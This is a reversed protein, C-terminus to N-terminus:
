FWSCDSDEAAQQIGAALFLAIREKNEQYAAMDHLNDIFAMELLVSPLRGGCVALQANKQGRDVLGTGAVLARHMIDQLAYAGPAANSSHVFSEVGTGGGANFHISVFTSCGAEVAAQHRDWYPLGEHETSSWVLVGRDRLESAVLDVLETTLDAERYGSGVAGSDYGAGYGNSDWGHGADLYVKFSSERGLAFAQDEGGRFESLVLGGDSATIYLGSESSRIYYADSGVAAPMFEWQGGASAMGDKRQVVSSGSSALHMGSKVNVIGYHGDSVQLVKFNQAPTGNKAYLGIAAGEEVSGGLVDFVVSSSISSFVYGGEPIDVFRDTPVLRFAQALTGNPEYVQVNAGDHAHGGQIDLVLGNLKSVVIVGGACYALRWKQADTGNETWQQVNTGNTMGGNAVDLVLGTSLNRIVYWGAGDPEFEYKQFGRANGDALGINGGETYSAGLVSLYLESGLASQLSYATNALVVEESTPEFRWQQAVTGNAEYSQANAGEASSASAVDLVQGGAATRITCGEEAAEISWLCTQAGVDAWQHVNLGSAYGSGEVDVFLGSNANQMRYYGSKEDYTVFFKQAGTGNPSYLQINAGNEFSAGEVDLVRESAVNSAIEYLGDEVMQEVHELVFRQAVTGNREWLQINAGNEDMGGAIDLCLDSSLKSAIVVSGDASGADEISWKQADTGNSSFQQVNAGAAAQGNAVDLVCGSAVCIITAYGNADVTVYFRQAPSNNDGWVQVNAGNGTSASSVDVMRSANQATRLLYVGEDLAIRGHGSESAEEFADGGEKRVQRESQADAIEESSSLTGAALSPEETVADGEKFDQADDLPETSGEAVGEGFPAEALEEEHLREDQEESRLVGDTSDEDACATVLPMAPSFSLCLAVLIAVASRARQVM